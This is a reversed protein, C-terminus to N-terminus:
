INGLMDQALFCTRFHPLRFKYNRVVHNKVYHIMAQHPDRRVESKMYVGGHLVFQGGLRADMM